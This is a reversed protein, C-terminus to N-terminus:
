LHVEWVQADWLFLILCMEIGLFKRKMVIRLHHKILYTRKDAQEM